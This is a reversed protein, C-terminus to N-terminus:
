TYQIFLRLNFILYHHIDTCPVAVGFQDENGTHNNTVREMEFLQGVALNDNGISDYGQRLVLVWGVVSTLIM